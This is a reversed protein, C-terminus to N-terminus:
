DEGIAKDQLKNLEVSGSGIIITNKISLV